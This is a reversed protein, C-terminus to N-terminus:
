GAVDRIGGRDIGNFISIVSLRTLSIKPSMMIESVGSSTLARNPGNNEIFYRTM